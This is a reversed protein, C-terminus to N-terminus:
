WKNHSIKCDRVDSCDPPRKFRAFEGDISPGVQFGNKDYSKATPSSVTFLTTTKGEVFRPRSWLFHVEDGAAIELTSPKWQYGIGLASVSTVNSDQLTIPFCNFCKTKIM